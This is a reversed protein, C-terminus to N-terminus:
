KPWAGVPGEGGAVFMPTFQSDAYRQVAAGQPNQATLTGFLIQGRDNLAQLSVGNPKTDVGGVRDGIKFIPQITYPTDAGAISAALVLTVTVLVTRAARVLLPEFRQNM